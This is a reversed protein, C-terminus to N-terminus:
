LSTSVKSKSKSCDTQDHLSVRMVSSGYETVNVLLKERCKNCLMELNEIKEAKGFVNGCEPCTVYSKM